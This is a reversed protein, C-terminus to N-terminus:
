YFSVPINVTASVTVGGDSVTCTAYFDTDITSGDTNRGGPGVVTLGCTASTPNSIILKGWPNDAATWLYSPNVPNTISATHSGCYGGTTARPHSFSTGSPSVIGVTRSALQLTPNNVILQTGDWKIETGGAVGIALKPVGNHFGFWVGTGSDWTRAGVQIFGAAAISVAMLKGAFTPDGAIPITVKIVGGQVLVIGESGIWVGNTTDGILLAYKSQLLLQGSLISQGDKSLKSQIASSLGPIQAYANAGAAAWEAVSQAPSGGVYSGAPAGFSANMDGVYGYDQLTKPTYNNSTQYNGLNDIVIGMDCWASPDSAVSGQYAESGNGEGCGPIGVLIYASRYQFQPSGFVARSAGCRYMATLLGGAGRNTQPEDSTYVVVIHASDINNLVNAMQAAQNADVLPFFSNCYVIAKDSRRIALLTYGAGAPYAPAHFDEVYFGEALNNGAGLLGRSVVRCSIPRDTVNDYDATLGAKRSIANQQAVRAKSLNDFITRYTARDIDTDSSTDNWFPVLNSLYNSAAYFAGDYPSVDLGFAVAQARLATWAAAEDNWMPILTKSKENRDLKGDAALTNYKSNAADATAQAAAASAASKATMANKLAERKSYYDAFNARFTPGDIPTDTTTDNWGAPLYNNLTYYALWFADRNVGLADAQNAIGSAEGTIAAWRLILDSKEGKSLVNDSSMNGIATNAADAAQQAAQISPVLATNQTGPAAYDPALASGAALIVNGAADRVSLGRTDILGATISQPVIVKGDIVVGNDVWASGTWRKEMVFTGSSITVVDGVVKPSPVSVNALADTWASGAAYYHGAGRAGPTSTGPAGDLVKWITCSKTYLKGNVTVSAIVTASTGPMSAGTLSVSKAAVNTMDGGVSNFNLAPAELDVLTATVTISAPTISGDVAVHFGPSDPLLQIDATPLNVGRAAAAQLTTDMFNVVTAM